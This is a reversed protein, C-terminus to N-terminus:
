DTPYHHNMAARTKEATAASRMKRVSETYAPWAKAAMESADRTFSVTTPHAKFEAFKDKAYDIGRRAHPKAREVATVAHRMAFDKWHHMARAASGREKGGLEASVGSVGSAAFIAM